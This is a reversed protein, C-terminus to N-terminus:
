FDVPQETQQQETQELLQRESDATEEAAESDAAESYEAEIVVDESDDNEAQAKQAKLFPLDDLGLIELLTMQSLPRLRKRHKFAHQVLMAGLLVGLRVHNRKSGFFGTLVCSLFGISLGIMESTAQASGKKPRRGAQQPAFLNSWFPKPRLLEPNRLAAAGQPDYLEIFSAITEVDLMDPDYEILASGTMPNISINKVGKIGGAPLEPPTAGKLETLRLRIRGPIFSTVM